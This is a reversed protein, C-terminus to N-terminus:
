NGRKQIVFDFSYEDGGTRLEVKIINFLLNKSKLWQLVVHPTLNHKHDLNAGVEGVNPYHDKLPLYMVVYGDVKLVRFWEVLADWPHQLHELLHSSFVYDICEDNFWYLNDAKGTLNTKALDIGISVPTIKNENYYRNDCNVGGCGIDLGNGSCYQILRERCKDVEGGSCYMGLKYM